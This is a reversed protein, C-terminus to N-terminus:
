VNLSTEWTEFRPSAPTNRTAPITADHQAPYGYPYGGGNPLTAQHSPSAPPPLNLQTAVTTSRAHGAVDSQVGTDLLPKRVDPSLVTDEPVLGHRLLQRKARELGTEAVRCRKQMAAAELLAVAAREEADTVKDEIVTRERNLYDLETKTAELQGTLAQVAASTHPNTAQLIARLGRERSADEEAAMRRKVEAALSTKVESHRQLADLADRQSKAAEAEAQAVRENLQKTSAAVDEVMDRDRRITAELQEVHKWLTSEKDKLRLNEENAALERAALANLEHRSSALEERTASL